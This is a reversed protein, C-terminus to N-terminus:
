ISESRLRGWHSMPRPISRHPMLRRSGTLFRAPSAPISPSRSSPRPHARGMAFPRLEEETTPLTPAPPPPAGGGGRAVNSSSAAPTLCVEEVPNRQAGEEAFTHHAHPGCWM